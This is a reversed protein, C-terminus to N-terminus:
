TNHYFSVRGSLNWKIEQEGETVVRLQRLEGLFLNSNKSFITEGDSERLDISLAALPESRIHARMQPVSLLRLEAPLVMLRDFLGIEGDAPNQFLHDKNEMAIGM